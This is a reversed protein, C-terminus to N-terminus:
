GAIKAGGLNAAMATLWLASSLSIGAMSSMMLYRGVRGRTAEDPESGQSSCISRLVPFLVGSRATNSPFAAAISLDTILLSYALGLTSRGLRRIILWALRAGLGSELMARSILYAAVILLSFDEAFGAFVDKAPLTRTLIAAAAGMLAALVIHVVDALVLTIVTAFIAFLSWARPELGSPAPVLYLGVGGLLILVLRTVSGRM